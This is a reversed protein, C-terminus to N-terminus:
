RRQGLCKQDELQKMLDFMDTTKKIVVYLHGLKKMAVRKIECDKEEDPFIPQDLYLPGCVATPFFKDVTRMLPKTPFEKECGPFKANKVCQKSKTVHEVLAEHTVTGHDRNVDVVQLVPKSDFEVREKKTIVAHNNQKSM